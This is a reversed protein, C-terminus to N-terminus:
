ESFAPLTVYVTPTAPIATIYMTQVALQLPSIFITSPASMYVTRLLSSHERLDNLLDQLHLLSFKSDRPLRRLAFSLRRLSFKPLPPASLRRTLRQSVTPRIRRPSLPSSRPLLPLRPIQLWMSPLQRLNRLLIQLLFDILVPSLLGYIRSM